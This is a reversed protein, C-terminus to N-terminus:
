ARRKKKNNRSISQDTKGASDNQIDVENEDDNENSVKRKKKKSGNSQIERLERSAIRQAENVRELLVLVTAEDAPYQPLTMNMLAELRQYPEVDYQTVFAISRGSKGARATRGVRESL